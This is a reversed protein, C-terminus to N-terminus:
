FTLLIPESPVFAFMSCKLIEGVIGRQSLQCRIHFSQSHRGRRSPVGVEIKPRKFKTKLWTTTIPILMLSLVFRDWLQPDAGQETILTWRRKFKRVKLNDWMPRLTQTRDEM